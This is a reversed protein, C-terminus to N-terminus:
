THFHPLFVFHLLCLEARLPGWRIPLCVMFWSRDCLAPTWLGPHQLPTLIHLCVGQLIACNQQHACSMESCPGQNRLCEEFVPSNRHLQSEKTCKQPCPKSVSPRTTEMLPFLAVWDQQHSPRSKWSCRSSCHLDDWCVLKEFVTLPPFVPSFRRSCIILKLSSDGWIRRAIGYCFHTLLSCEPWMCREPQLPPNLWLPPLNRSPQWYNYSSRGMYRM